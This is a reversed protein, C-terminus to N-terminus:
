GKESPPLVVIVGGTNEVKKFWDKLSYSKGAWSRKEVYGSGDDARMLEGDHVYETGDKRRYVCRNKKVEESYHTVGFLDTQYIKITIDERRIAKPM